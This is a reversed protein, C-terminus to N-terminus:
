TSSTIKVFKRRGRQLVLNSPEILMDAQKVLVGSIKVSMQSIARRAESKSTCLKTLVLLEVINVPENISFVPMDLPVDGSQHVRYFQDAAKNAAEEGHFIDVIEWALKKKAEMPHLRGDNIDERFRIVAEPLWRTVMDAYHVIIGDPLSMVKGYQQEPSETVGIYNCLSKSMKQIGDTGILLPYTICIQPKMGNAEQIRRCAMLNFLQETAGIQVDAKLFVSDYGQALPYLLEHLWLPEKKEIRIHLRDRVLFQQVTFLSAAKIVELFTLKGLWEDNYLITTKQPDLIKFAQDAYTQANEMIQERSLMHRASDRDSPDGILSTFTGVVFSVDHGFQQFQRLKRMTITHGLHIDPATVDYGCYVKLPRKESRAEVLRQQLEGTMSKRTELDGFESGQMYVSVQNDIDDM